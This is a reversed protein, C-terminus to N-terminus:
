RSPGQWVGTASTRPDHYRCDGSRPCALWPLDKACVRREFKKRSKTQTRYLSASPERITSLRRCLIPQGCASARRRARLRRHDGVGIRPRGDVFCLLRCGGCPRHAWAVMTSYTDPQRMSISTRRVTWNTSSVRNRGLMVASNSGCCFRKPWLTMQHGPSLLVIRSCSFFCLETTASLWAGLCVVRNMTLSM